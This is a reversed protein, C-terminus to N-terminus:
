PQRGIVSLTQHKAANKALERELAREKHSKLVERGPNNGAEWIQSLFFQDGYRLFVLKSKTQTTTARVNNTLVVTRTRGDVSSISLVAPENSASRKVIYEGPPLTKGQIAFEFPITVFFYHSSQANVSIVTLVVILSLMTFAILTQKKM